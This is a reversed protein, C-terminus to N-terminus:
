PTNKNSNAVLWCDLTLLSLWYLTERLLIITTTTITTAIAFPPASSSGLHLLHPFWTCFVLDFSILRILDFRPQLGLFFMDPLPVSALRKAPNDPPNIFQYSTVRQSNVWVCLIAYILAFRFAPSAPGYYEKFRQQAGRPCNTSVLRGPWRFPQQGRHFLMVFLTCYPALRSAVTDRLPRALYDIQNEDMTNKNFAPGFRLGRAICM